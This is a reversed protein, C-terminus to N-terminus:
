SRRKIVYATWVMKSPDVILGDYNFQKEKAQKMLYPIRLNVQCLCLKDNVVAVTDHQYSPASYMFISKGDIKTTQADQAYSIAPLLAFLFLTTKM